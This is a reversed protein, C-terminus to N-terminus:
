LCGRLYVNTINKTSAREFMPPPFGVVDNSRYYCSEEFWLWLLAVKFECEDGWDTVQKWKYSHKKNTKINQRIIGNRDRWICHLSGDGISVWLTMCIIVDALFADYIILLLSIKQEFITVKVIWLNTKSLKSLQM